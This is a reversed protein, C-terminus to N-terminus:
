NFTLVVKIANTKPDMFTEFAKEYEEAAFEHTVFLKLLDKKEHLYSTVIPFKNNQLRTGSVSIEKQNLTKYNVPIDDFGFALPVIRSAPSLYEIAEKIVGHVGTTDILVNAGENNTLEMIKDKLNEKSPNILVEAGFKKAMELRYENIESVICKAGKKTAIDVALLGMPGAGTILVWDGEQVNARQTCQEAITYPEATAAEAFTLSDDVKHWKSKDTVLYECFGGDRHVGYVELDKCVNYRGQKCAYCEGCFEVPELVVKDGPKFNSVNSGVEEIEGSVEHGIIRPYTAFPNKGKLIGVDSGCIGFARVKVLVQDKSEIKPKEIEVMEIKNPEKVQIAKM